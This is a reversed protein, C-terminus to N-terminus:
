QKNNANIYYNSLIKRLNEKARHMLGEVAKESINLIQSVANYSLGETKILVFAIRQNQPLQKIAKFLIIAEEKKDLAIGPHHFEVINNEEKEGIGILNKLLNIRKKAKKAREFDLSKTISIKYIWTSLKSEQRFGDISEYVQIFVDQALDEADHFHQVIALITNFVMNQYNSVLLTFAQENRQKLAAILQNETM